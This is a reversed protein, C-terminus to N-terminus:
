LDIRRYTDNALRQTTPDWDITFVTSRESRMSLLRRGDQVVVSEAAVFSMTEDPGTRNCVVLPLGIDLTCQEWEGNPGHFGPAWAAPSVLLQAGQAALSKAIWPSYADACVLVGVRGVPPVAITTLENGPTSWAESGLRLTNIKRHTGLIAGDPAIVFVSNHLTDARADREPHSLFVTVRLDAVRRCFATMWPDPQERIWDTGVQDAFTFGSICFEPTVIWSAGSRAAAAVAAEVLRRNRAIDGAIPALHLLAIRLTM